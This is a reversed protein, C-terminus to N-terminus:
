GEIEKALIDLRLVVPLSPGNMRPKIKIVYKIFAAIDLAGHASGALTRKRRAESWLPRAANPENRGVGLM